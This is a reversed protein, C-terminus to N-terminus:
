HPRFFFVITALRSSEIERDVIKKETSYRQLKGGLLPDHLGNRKEIRQLYLLQQRKAKTMM